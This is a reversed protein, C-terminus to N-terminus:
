ALVEDDDTLSAAALAQPLEAFQQYRVVRGNFVRFASAIWRETTTPFLWCGLQEVVVLGPPGCFWRLPEPTFGLWERLGAPGRRCGHAGIVEIDEATIAFLLDYDRAHLAKHWSEVVSVPLLEM